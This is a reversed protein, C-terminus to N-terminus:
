ENKETYKFISDQEYTLKLKPYDGKRMPIWYYASFINSLSFKTEEDIGDIYSEDDVLLKLYGVGLKLSKILDPHKKLMGKEFQFSNGVYVMNSEHVKLRLQKVLKLLINYLHPGNIPLARTANCDKSSFNFLVKHQATPTLTKERAEEFLVNMIQIFRRPNGEAIKRIMKPGAYWGPTANGQKSIKQMERTFYIPAFKDYIEKRIKSVGEHRIKDRITEQRASSLEAIMAEQISKQDSKQEKKRKLLENKFYDILDDEGVVGVFDELTNVNPADKLKVSLLRAKCLNNTVNVFDVSDEKMDLKRYNFDNGNSEAFINDVLTEKTLHRYPMTAMKIVINRSEARFLSNICRQLNKEIFEAEDICVIWTPEKDFGLKKYILSSVAQIPRCINQKFVKPINNLGKKIDSNEYINIVLCELDEIQSIKEISIDPFWISAITQAVEKSKLGMSILDDETIVANLEYLLSRAILCNFSFQFFLLKDKEQVKQHVFSGLFELNTPAYISIYKKQSILQRARSDDIQKLLSYRMMRLLITKGSGRRGILVEHQDNFLSWFFSTPYFEKVLKDSSFTRAQVDKFPNSGTYGKIYSSIRNM